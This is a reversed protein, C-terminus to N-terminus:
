PMGRWAYQLWLDDAVMLDATQEKLYRKRREVALARDLSRERNRAAALADRALEERRRAKAFDARLAELSIREASYMRRLARLLMPNVESRVLVERLARMSEKCRENSESVRDYARQALVAADAVQSAAEALEFQVQTRVAHLTRETSTM